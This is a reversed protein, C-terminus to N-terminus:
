PEWKFPVVKLLLGPPESYAVCRAGTADDKLGVAVIVRYNAPWTMDYLLNPVVHFRTWDGESLWTQRGQAGTGWRASKYSATPPADPSALDSRTVKFDIGRYIDYAEYEYKKKSKSKVEVVLRIPELQRFETKEARVNIEFERSVDVAKRLDPPELSKIQEDGGDSRSARTRDPGDFSLILLVASGLALRLLQM